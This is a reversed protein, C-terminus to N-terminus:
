AVEVNKYAVKCKNTKGNCLLLPIETPYSNDILWQRVKQFVSEKYQVTVGSHGKREYPTTIKEDELIDIQQLIGSIAKDHLKGSESLVGLEKAMETCDYLKKEKTTLQIPINYGAEEYINKAAVAIYLPDVGAKSFIDNVNKIMMNISSLNKKKLTKEKNNNKVIFENALVDACREQYMELRSSLDLMEKEMKPTIEIKALALPLKMIDICYAEQTGGKELPYSFKQVGKSIVKDANWKNRRYEIQREDFGLDRLILNIGAYIKNSNKDQIALLKTGQFDVDKVILENM